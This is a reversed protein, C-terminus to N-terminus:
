NIILKVKGDNSVKSSRTGEMMWSIVWNRQRERFGSEKQMQDNGMAPNQNGSMLLRGGEYSIKDQM